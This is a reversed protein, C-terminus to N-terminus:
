AHGRRRLDANSAMARRSGFVPQPVDQPPASDRLDVPLAHDGRADLGVHDAAVPPAAAPPGSQVVIAQEAFDHCAAIMLELERAIEQAQAILDELKQGAGDSKIRVEGLAAKMEDVQASLVAIAGGIGKDFSTLRSLRRSLVACYIAAGLAAAIMMLDAIM